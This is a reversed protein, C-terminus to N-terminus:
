QDLRIRSWPTPPEFGREGVMREKQGKSLDHRLAKQLHYLSAADISCNLLVMRLLKAQETSNQRVYLFYAKNALELCRQANLLRDSDSDEAGAIAERIQQEETRWDGMKRDWFDEPIKGDLKDSYAQDMRRRVIALRQEM